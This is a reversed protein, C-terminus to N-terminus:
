NGLNEQWLEDYRRSFHLQLQEARDAEPELVIQMAALLQKWRADDLANGEARQIRDLAAAIELIKARVPLYERDLLQHASAPTSM